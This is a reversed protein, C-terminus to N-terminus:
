LIIECFFIMLIQFAKIKPTKHSGTMTAEVELRLLCCIGFTKAVM